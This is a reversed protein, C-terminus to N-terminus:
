REGAAHIAQSINEVLFRTFIAAGQLNLHGSDLRNEKLFLVPYRVPNAYDFFSTGAQTASDPTFEHGGALPPIFLFMRGGHAAILNRKEELLRQSEPDGFDPVIVQLAAVEKCLVDWEVADIKDPPYHTQFGDTREGSVAPPQAEPTDTMTRAIGDLGRGMDLAYELFQTLNFWLASLDAASLKRGPKSKLICRVVSAFRSLDHWYLVRLTGHSADGEVPVHIKNCEVVAFKLPKRRGALVRELLYGDEPARMGNIGLNFSHTPMGKERMLQDFLSPIIHGYTRSSGLFLTDYEDGHLALWEM